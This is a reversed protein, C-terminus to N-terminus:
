TTKNLIHFTMQYIVLKLVYFFPWFGDTKSMIFYITVRLTQYIVKIFVCVQFKIGVFCFHMTEEKHAFHLKNLTYANSIKNLILEWICKFLILNRNSILVHIIIFTHFYFVRKLGFNILLIRWNHLLFLIITQQVQRLNYQWRRKQNRLSQSITSEIITQNLLIVHVNTLRVFQM